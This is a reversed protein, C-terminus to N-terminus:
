MYREVLGVLPTIQHTGIFDRVQGNKSGVPRFFIATGNLGVEIAFAVAPDQPPVDITPKVLMEPGFSRELLNHKAEM